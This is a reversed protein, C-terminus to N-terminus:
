GGKRTRSCRYRADLGFSNWLLESEFVKVLSTTGTDTFFREEPSSPMHSLRSKLSVLDPAPHLATEAAPSCPLPENYIYIYIYICMYVYIYTYIYIYIHICIYM